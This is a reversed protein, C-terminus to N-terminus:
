IFGADAMEALLRLLSGSGYTREGMLSLKHREWGGDGAPTQCGLLAGQPNIWTIVENLVRKASYAISDDIWGQSVGVTLGTAIMVSGSTELHAESNEPVIRWLGCGHQTRLLGIVLDRYISLVESWGPVDSPCHRLVDALALIVWGNGRAWHWPTKRGDFHAEHFFCGTTVDRLHKAHLLAQNVAEEAYRRDNTVSYVVALPAASYYLTDVWPIPSWEGHCIVGDPGRLCGSIIHDAIKRATDLYGANVNNGHLHALVMAGGWEGCYPTLYFGRHAIGAQQIGGGDNAADTPYETQFGAAVHYDAWRTAWATMEADRFSSGALALGYPVLVDEWGSNITAVDCGLQRARFKGLPGSMLVQSAGELASFRTNM